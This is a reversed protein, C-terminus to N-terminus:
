SRSAMVITQLLKTWVDLHQWSPNYLIDNMALSLNSQKPDLREGDYILGLVEAASKDFFASNTDFLFNAWGLFRKRIRVREAGIEAWGSVGFYAIVRGGELRQEAWPPLVGEPKVTGAAHDLVLAVNENGRTLEVRGPWIAITRSSGLEVQAERVIEEDRTQVQVPQQTAQGQPQQAQPAPAMFSFGSPQTASSGSVAAPVEITRTVTKRKADLWEPNPNPGIPDYRPYTITMSGDRHIEIDPRIEYSVWDALYNGAIGWNAGGVVKAVAFYWWAFVFYLICATLLIPLRFRQWLSRQMLEPHRAAIAEMQAANMNTM